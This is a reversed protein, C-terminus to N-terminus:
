QNNSPLMTAIRLPSLLGSSDVCSFDVPAHQQGIQAKSPVPQREAVLGRCREPEFYPHEIGPYHLGHIRTPTDRPAGGHGVEGYQPCSM